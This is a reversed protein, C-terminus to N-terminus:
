AGFRSPSTLGCPKALFRGTDANVGSPVDAAVVLADTDNAADSFWAASGQLAGRMGIGVIGDVRSRAMSATKAMKRLRSSRAAAQLARMGDAHVTSLSRSRGRRACGEQRAHCGRLTRRRRQKRRGVLLCVEAGYVGGRTRSAFTCLNNGLATAARLM